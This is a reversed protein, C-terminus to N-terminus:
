VAAEREHKAIFREIQEDSFRLTKHGLKYHDLKRERVLEYVQHRGIGLRAMVYAIDRLPEPAAQEATSGHM